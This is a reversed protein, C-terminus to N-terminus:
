GGLQPVKYFYVLERWGQTSRSGPTQEDSAGLPGGLPTLEVTEHPLKTVCKNDEEGTM